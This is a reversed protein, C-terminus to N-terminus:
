LRKLYMQTWTGESMLSHLQLVFCKFYNKFTKISCACAKVLCNLYLYQVLLCVPDRPGKKRWPWGWTTAVHGCKWPSKTMRKDNWMFGISRQIYSDHQVVSCWSPTTELGTSAMWTDLGCLWRDQPFSCINLSSTTRCKRVPRIFGTMITDITQPEELVERIIKIRM